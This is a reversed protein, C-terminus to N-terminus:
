YTPSYFGCRERKLVELAQKLLIEESLSSSCAYAESSSVFDEGKGVFIFL